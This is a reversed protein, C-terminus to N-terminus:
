ANGRATTCLNAPLPCKTGSSAPASAPRSSSANRSWRPIVHGHSMQFDNAVLRLLAVDHGLFQSMSTAKWSIDAQVAFRHRIEHEERFCDYPPSM